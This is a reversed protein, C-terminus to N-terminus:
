DQMPPWPRTAEAETWNVAWDPLTLDPVDGLIEVLRETPVIGNRDTVVMRLLAHSICEGTRWMSQEAYM